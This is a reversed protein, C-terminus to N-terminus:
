ISTSLVEEQSFRKGFDYVVSTIRYNVMFWCMFCACFGLFACELQLIGRGIFWLGVCACFGLFACELDLYQGVRFVLSLM